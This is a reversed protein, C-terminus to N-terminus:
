WSRREGRYAAEEAKHILADKWEKPLSHFVEPIAFAMRMLDEGESYYGLFFRTVAGIKKVYVKMGFPAGAEGREAASKVRWYSQGDYQCVERVAQATTPVLGGSNGILAKHGTQQFCTM